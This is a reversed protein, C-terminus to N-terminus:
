KLKAIFDQQGLSSVGYLALLRTIGKEEIYSSVSGTYYRLDILHIEEFQGAMLPILCHAFSDKLVLLKGKGQNSKIKVLAHNGDLFVSYKDKGELKSTEFLTTKKQGNNDYEAVVDIKPEYITLVDHSVYRYASKSHLSGLFYDSAAYARYDSIPRPTMEWTDMLASYAHYAGLTTWHHDSYYYLYEQSHNKLVDPSPVFDFSALSEKAREWLREEDPTVAYDPLGEPQIYGASPAPLFAATLGNKRAFDELARLNEVLIKNDIYLMEYLRRGKGYYVGNNDRKGLLLQSTTKSAVWENRLYFQDCIYEEFGRSFSGNFINKISFAPAQKLPRNEAESVRIDSTILNVVFMGALIIVFFSSLIHKSWNTQNSTKVKAQYNNDM